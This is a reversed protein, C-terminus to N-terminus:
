LVLSVFWYAKFAETRHSADFAPRALFVGGSGQRDRAASADHEGSLVRRITVGCRARSSARRATRFFRFQKPAIVPRPPRNKCRFARSGCHFARAMTATLVGFNM